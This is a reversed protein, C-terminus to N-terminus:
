SIDPSAANIDLLDRKHDIVIKGAITLVVDMPNSATAPKPPFANGDVKHSALINANQTVDLTLPVGHRGLEVDALLIM